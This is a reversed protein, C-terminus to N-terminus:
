RAELFTLLLHLHLAPGHTGPRLRILVRPQGPTLAQVSGPLENGAVVADGLEAGQGPDRNLHWPQPFGLAM